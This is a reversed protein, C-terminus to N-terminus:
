TRRIYVCGLTAFTRTRNDSATPVVYSAKFNTLDYSYGGAGGYGGVSFSSDYVCAGGFRAGGGLQAFQGTINRVADIHWGGVAQLYSSGACRSYDGRTDPLKITKASADLVFFPVGGVGGAASSLANWQALTKCKWANEPKQLYAWLDPYDTDAKALVAGNRAAWGAPPTQEFWDRYEGITYAAAHQAATLAANATSQAADAAAQANGAAVGAANATKQAAEAANVGATGQDYALKAANATAAATISVSDIADVLTLHGAAATTGAFKAHATLDSAAAKQGLLTTLQTLAAEMGDADAKLDLTKLVAGAHGDLLQFAEVLRLVDNELFNDIDPLPLGLTITTKDPM